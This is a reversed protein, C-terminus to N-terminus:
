VTARELEERVLDVLQEFSEPAALKGEIEEDEALSNAAEVLSEANFNDEVEAPKGDKSWLYYHTKELFEDKLLSKIGAAAGKDDDLVVFYRIDMRRLFGLFTRLQKIKGKGGGDLTLFHIGMAAPDLDLLSFVTPLIRGTSQDECVLVLDAMALDSNRSGLERKLDPFDGEALRQAVTGGDRLRVGITGFLGDDRAFVSSHTTLLIQLDKEDAFTRFLDALGRQAGPHIATEPEELMVTAGTPARILELITSLLSSVGHGGHILSWDAYASLIRVSTMQNENNIHTEIRETGPVLGKMFSQIEAFTSPDNNNLEQLARPLQNPATFPPQQVSVATAFSREPGLWRIGRLWALASVLPLLNVDDANSPNSIEGNVAAYQIDRLRDNGDSKVEDDHPLKVITELIPVRSSGHGLYLFEKSRFSWVFRRLTVEDPAKSTGAEFELRISNGFDEEGFSLGPVSDALTEREDRSFVAEIIIQIPRESHATTVDRFWDDSNAGRRLDEFYDRHVFLTLLALSQLIASKGSNNPGIFAAVRPIDTVTFDRLSKYGKVSLGTLHM